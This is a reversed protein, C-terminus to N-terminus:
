TVLAEPPTPSPSPVPVHIAKFYGMIMWDQIWSPGTFIATQVLSMIFSASYSYFFFFRKSSSGPKHWAWYKYMSNNYIFSTICSQVRRQGVLHEPSWSFLISNLILSELIELEPELQTVKPLHSLSESNYETLSLLLTLGRHFLIVCYATPQNRDTHLLYLEHYPNFFCKM